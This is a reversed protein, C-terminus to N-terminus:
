HWRLIVMAEPLLSQEREPAVRGRGRGQVFVGHGNGEGIQATM